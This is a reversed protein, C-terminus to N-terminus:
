RHLLSSRTVHEYESCQWHSGVKEIEAERRKQEDKLATEKRRLELNKQQRAKQENKIKRDASAFEFDM